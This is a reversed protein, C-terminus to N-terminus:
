PQKLEIEERALNFTIQFLDFFGQQGVIGYPKDDLAKAFGAQAEFTLGAVEITIPHIYFDQPEGTAGMMTAMRGHTPDIGLYEGVQYGFINLDAGSDILVEYDLINAGHHLAIPIVPRLIDDSYRAYRFTM